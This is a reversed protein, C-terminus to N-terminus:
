KEVVLYVFDIFIRYYYYFVLILLNYRLYSKFRCYKFKLDLIDVMEDNLSIWIVIEFGIIM